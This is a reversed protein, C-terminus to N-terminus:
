KLAARSDVFIIFIFNVANSTDSRAGDFYVYMLVRTEKGTIDHWKM